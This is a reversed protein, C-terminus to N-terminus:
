PIPSRTPDPPPSPEPTPVSAPSPEPTPSVSPTSSPSPLPSAPSVPTPSPIAIKLLATGIVDPSYRDQNTVVAIAFGSDPLYRISSRSGILRGNHGFTRRGGFWAETM